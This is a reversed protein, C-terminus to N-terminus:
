MGCLTHYFVVCQLVFRWSSFCVSFVTFHVSLIPYMSRVHVTCHTRVYVVYYQTSNIRPICCYFLAVADFAQRSNYFLFFYLIHIIFFLYFFLFNSCLFSLFFSSLFTQEQWPKLVACYTLTQDNTYTVWKYDTVQLSSTRRPTLLVIM